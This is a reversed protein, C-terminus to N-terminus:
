VNPRLIVTLSEGGSERKSFGPHHCPSSDQVRPYVGKEFRVEHDDVIQQKHMMKIVCLTSKVLGSNDVGDTRLQEQAKTKMTGLIVRGFAGEGLVRGNSCTCGGSCECNVIYSHARARAINTPV